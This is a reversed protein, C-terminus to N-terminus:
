ALSRWDIPRDDAGQGWRTRGPGSISKQDGACELAPSVPREGAPPSPPLSFGSRGFAIWGHEGLQSGRGVVVPLEPARGDLPPSAWMQRRDLLVKEVRALLAHREVPKSFMAEIGLDGATRPSIDDIGSVLIVAPRCLGREKMQKIFSVGDMVPMRVDSVVVHVEEAAVKNLAVLGNEASIVRCHERKFWECTLERLLPEDEVVLVTADKLEM